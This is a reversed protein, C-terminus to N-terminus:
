DYASYPSGQVWQPPHLSYTPRISVDVKQGETLQQNDNWKSVMITARLGESDPEDVDASMVFVEIAGAAMGSAMFSDRFAVYNPDTSDKIMSFDITGDKLAAAVVKWGASGRTTIDAEAKELSLTLDTCNDVKVLVPANYTASNRYLAGELGLRAGM